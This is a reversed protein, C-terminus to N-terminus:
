RRSGPASRPRPRWCGRGPCSRSDGITKSTLGLEKVFREASQASNEPTALRLASGSQIAAAQFLGKGGPMALVTSTKAGGGSQGFIMVRGPDGGFGEINERVWQLSAVMDMAGTVGAYKFDPGAGAGVLNV